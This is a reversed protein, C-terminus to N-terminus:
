KADKFFKTDNMIPIGFIDQEHMFIAKTNDKVLWMVRYKVDNVLIYIKVSSYGELIEIAQLIKIETYM